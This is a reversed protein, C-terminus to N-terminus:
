VRLNWMGQAAAAYKEFDEVKGERQIQAGCKCIVIARALTCPYNLPTGSMQPSGGCFPCPKLTWEKELADDIQSM